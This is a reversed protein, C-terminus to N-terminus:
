QKVDVDLHSSILKINNEAAVKLINKYAETKASYLDDINIWICLKLIAGNDLGDLYVLPSPNKLATSCMSPVESMKEIVRDPDEDYPIRIEFVLRRIKFHSYNILNNNFIDSSPIRVMQNDMTHIRVSLLGVHDVTGEVDNVAIYDGIKISQETLVFIGSFMNSVTTQAAFAIALGTIGAAGWVAKLDIGLVGMIYMIIVIYFVYTVTRSVIYTVNENLRKKAQRLIVKKILRYAVYFIVLALVTIIIRSINHPTFFSLIEDIYFIRKTEKVIDITSEANEM